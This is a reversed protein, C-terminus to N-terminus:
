GQVASQARVAAQTAEGVLKWPTPLLFHLPREREPTSNSGQSSATQGRLQGTAQMSPSQQPESLKTGLVHYPSRVAKRIM